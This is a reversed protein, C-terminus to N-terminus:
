LVQTWRQLAASGLLLVLVVVALVREIEISPRHSQILGPQMLIRAANDPGLPATGWDVGNADALYATLQWYQADELIGPFPWPMTERVYAHLDAATQYAGLTGPGRIAPANRPLRFGEPPHNAAHCKSQWCNQDEPDLVSRWEDVLGQGRDGHCVMCSLYYAYHGLGVQTPPDSMPPRALRTDPDIGMSPEPTASKLSPSSAIGRASPDLAPVTDGSYASAVEAAMFAVALAMACYLLLRFGQVMTMCM